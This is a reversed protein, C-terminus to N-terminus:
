PTVGTKRTAGARRGSSLRLGDAFNRGILYLNLAGFALESLELARFTSGTTASNALHSLILACPVLIALGIAAAVQLRRRKRRVIPSRSHGSLRNGTLGATALCVVLLPLGYVIAHRLARVPGNSGALETIASTALFTTVVVVSALSAALHIRVLSSTTPM